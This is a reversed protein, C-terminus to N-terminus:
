VQTCPCTTKSDECQNGIVVDGAVFVNQGLSCREGIKANAMVHLFALDEDGRGITCPEDVYASPHVYYDRESM